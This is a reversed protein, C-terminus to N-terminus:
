GTRGYAAGGKILEAVSFLMREKAFENYLNQRIFAISSIKKPPIGVLQTFVANFVSRHEAIFFVTQTTKSMPGKGARALAPAQGYLPPLLPGM